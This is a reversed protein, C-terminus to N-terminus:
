QPHTPRRLGTSNSFLSFPTGIVFSSLHLSFSACIFRRGQSHLHILTNVTIPLWLLILFQLVKHGLHLSRLRVRCVMLFWRSVKLFTASRLLLLHSQFTDGVQVPCGPLCGPTWGAGQRFPLETFSPPPPLSRDLNGSERPFLLTLWLYSNESFSPIKYINIIM